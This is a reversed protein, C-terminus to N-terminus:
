EWQQEPNKSAAWSCSLQGVSQIYPWIYRSEDVERRCVIHSKNGFTEKKTPNVTFADIRHPTTAM